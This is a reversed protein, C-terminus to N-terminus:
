DEENLPKMRIVPRSEDVPPHFVTPDSTAAALPSPGKPSPPPPPAPALPPDEPPELNQNFSGEIFRLKEAAQFINKIGRPELNKISNWPVCAMEEGDTLVAKEELRVIVMLVSGYRAVPQALRGKAKFLNKAGSAGFLATRLSKFPFAPARWPNNEHCAFYEYGSLYKDGRGGRGESLPTDLNPFPLSSVALEKQSAKLSTNSSSEGSDYITLEGLEDSALPAVRTLVYAVIPVVSNETNFTVCLETKRNNTTGLVNERTDLEFAGHTLLLQRVGVGAGDDLDELPVKRLKPWDPDDIIQAQRLEMFSLGEKNPISYIGPRLGHLLRHIFKPSNHAEVAHIWSEGYDTKLLEINLRIDGSSGSAFVTAKTVQVSVDEEGSPTLPVVRSETGPLIKLQAKPGLVLMEEKQSDDINDITTDSEPDVQPSRESPAAPLDERESAEKLGLYMEKATTFREAAESNLAKELWNRIPLSDIEESIEPEGSCLPRVGFPHIGTIAEHFVVALSFLDMAPESETVGYDVSRYRGTGGAIEDGSSAAIGFDVLVLGRVQNEVVLNEPKIDRHVFLREENPDSSHFQHLADLLNLFWDIALGLDIPKQTEKLTKGILLEMKLYIRNDIDEIDFVRVINPHVINMLVGFERRVDDVEIGQRFKKLAFSQGSLEDFAKFVAGSTGAGLLDLIKYRRDVIFDEDDLLEAESEEDSFSRSQLLVEVKEAVEAASVQRDEPNNKCLTSVLKQLDEPIDQQVGHEWIKKICIGLAYLDVPQWVEVDEGLTEPAQFEETNLEPIRTTGTASQSLESLYAKDWSGLRAYPQNSNEAMPNVSVTSLSLARHSINSNHAAKLAKAIDRIISLATEEELTQGQERLGELFEDLSPGYPLPLVIFVDGLDTVGGSVPGSIEPAWGSVQNVRSVARFARLVKDQERKQEPASLARDTKHLRLHQEVGTLVQEVSYLPSPKAELQNLVRWGGFQQDENKRSEFMGISELFDKENIRSPEIHGPVMQDQNQLRGAAHSLRIVSNEKAPVIQLFDPDRALIVQSTFWPRERPPLHDFFSVLRRAKSATLQCPDTRQAGNVTHDFHGFIVRGSYGKTEVVTVWRPGVVLADIEDINGTHAHFFQINPIILYSDPLEELLKTVVEEEAENQYEGGHDNLLRAM